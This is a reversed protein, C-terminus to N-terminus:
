DNKLLLFLRNMQAQKPFVIESYNHISFYSTLIEEWENTTKNLLIFGDDLLDDAIIKFQWEEIQPETIFPNLKVLVKGNVKLIRNVEQLVLYVDQPYLNDLINSLIVADVSADKITNLKEVGGWIFEFEGPKFKAKRINAKEIAKASLDIGIHFQTGQLTCIFLLTGDGCGFDLVQQTGACLWELGANFIENGTSAKTPLKGSKATFIENWAKIAKEYKASL